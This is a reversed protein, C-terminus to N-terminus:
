AIRQPNAVLTGTVYFTAKVGPAVEFTNSLSTLATIFRDGLLYTLDGDDVDLNQLQEWIYILSFTGLQTSLDGYNKDTFISNQRISLPVEDLYFLNPFPLDKPKNKLYHILTIPAMNSSIDTYDSPNVVAGTTDFLAAGSSTVFSLLGGVEQATTVQLKIGKELGFRNESLNKLARFGNFKTLASELWKYDFNIIRQAIEFDQIDKNMKQFHILSALSSAYSAYFVNRNAFMKQTTYDSKSTSLKLTPDFPDLDMYIINGFNSVSNIRKDIGTGQEKLQDYFAFYSPINNPIKTIGDIIDYLLVNIIVEDEVNSYPHDIEGYVKMTEETIEKLTDVVERLQLSVNANSKQFNVDDFQSNEFIVAESFFTFAFLLLYLKLFKM